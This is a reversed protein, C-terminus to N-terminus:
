LDICLASGLWYEPTIDSNVTKQKEIELIPHDDPELKHLFPELLQNLYDKHNPEQQMKQLVCQISLLQQYADQLADQTEDLQKRIQQCEKNKTELIQETTPLTEKRFSPWEQLTGKSVHRIFKWKKDLTNIRLMKADDLSSSQLCDQKRKGLVMNNKLESRPRRCSGVGDAEKIPIRNGVSLSNVKLVKELCEYRHKVLTLYSNLVKSLDGKPPCWQYDGFCFVCKHNCDVLHVTTLHFTLFELQIPLSNIPCKKCVIFKNKNRESLQLVLTTLSHLEKSM